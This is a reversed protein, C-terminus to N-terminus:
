SKQLIKSAQWGKLNLCASSSRPSGFVNFLLPLITTQLFSCPVTAQKHPHWARPPPLSHAIRCPVKGVSAQPYFSSPAQSRSGNGLAQKPISAWVSSCWFWSLGGRRLTACAALGSPLRWRFLSVIRCWWDGEIRARHFMTLAVVRWLRYCVPLDGSQVRARNAEEM